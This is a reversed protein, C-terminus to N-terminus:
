RMVEMFANYTVGAEKNAKTILGRLYDRTAIKKTVM